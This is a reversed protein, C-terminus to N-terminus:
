ESKLKVKESSYRFSEFVDNKFLFYLVFYAVIVTPILICVYQVYAIKISELWSLVYSVKQRYPINVHLEIVLQEDTLYNMDFRDYEFTNTINRQVYSQYISQFNFITTHNKFFSENYINKGVQGFSIPSKQRFGM